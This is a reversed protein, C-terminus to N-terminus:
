RGPRKRVHGSSADHYLASSTPTESSAWALSRSLQRDPHIDKVSGDRLLCSQMCM